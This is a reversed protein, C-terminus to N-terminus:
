MRLGINLRAPMERRKRHQDKWPMSAEDNWLSKKKKKKKKLLIANKAPILDSDKHSSQWCSTKIKGTCNITEGGDIRLSAFWTLIFSKVCVLLFCISAGYFRLLSNIETDRYIEKGSPWYLNLIHFGRKCQVPLYAKTSVFRGASKEFYVICCYCGTRKSFRGGSQTDHDLLMTSFKWCFYPVETKM